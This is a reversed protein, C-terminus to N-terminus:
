IIGSAVYAGFTSSVPCYSAFFDTKQLNSELNPMAQEVRGRGEVIKRNLNKKCIQLAAKVTLELHLRHKYWSWTM